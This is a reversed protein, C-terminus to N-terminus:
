GRLELLLLVSYLKSMQVEPLIEGLVQNDLDNRDIDSQGVDDHLNEVESIPATWEMIVPLCRCLVTLEGIMEGLIQNRTSM